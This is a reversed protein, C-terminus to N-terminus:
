GSRHVRPGGGRGKGETGHRGGAPVMYIFTEFVTTGITADAFVKDFRDEVGPGSVPVSPTTVTSRGTSVRRDTAGTTCVGQYVSLFACPGCRHVSVIAGFSAGRARARLM